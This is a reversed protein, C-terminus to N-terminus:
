YSGYQFFIPYNHHDGLHGKLRDPHFFLSDYAIMQALIKTFRCIFFLPLLLARQHHKSLAHSTRSIRTIRTERLLSKSTNLLFLHKTTRLIVKQLYKNYHIQQNLDDTNLKLLFSIRLKILSKTKM